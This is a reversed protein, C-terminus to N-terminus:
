VEEEKIPTLFGEFVLTIADEIIAFWFHQQFFKPTPQYIGVHNLFDYKEKKTARKILMVTFHEEIDGYKASMKSCVTLNVLQKSKFGFKKATRIKQSITAPEGLKLNEFYKSQTKYLSFSM